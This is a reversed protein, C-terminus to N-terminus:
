DFLGLCVPSLLSKVENQQKVQVFCELATLNVKMKTTKYYIHIITEPSAGAEMNLASIRGSFSPM